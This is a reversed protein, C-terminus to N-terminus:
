SQMQKLVTILSKYNETETVNRTKNTFKAIGENAIFLQMSDASVIEKRMKLMLYHPISNDFPYITGLFNNQDMSVRQM